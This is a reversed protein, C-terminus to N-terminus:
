ARIFGRYVALIRALMRDLTFQTEFRERAARGFARRRSADSVLSELRDALVEPEAPPVLYGTEGDVVQDTSGGINTAVCPLGFAMAEIVVGGFPEPQASPLVFVDMAAYSARPDALEGTLVVRDTLGRAEIRARLRHEHDENGKAASGVILIRPSIGRDRLLRAADVLHEQGKRVFKIRGVTGVVVEDAGIGYRARFEQRLAARDVDFEEPPVGNNIVIVHDSPEFQAAIAGSVCIVRDSFRRIYREYLPWIRGFEQFSDRIHWIHPVGALRAALAPSVIVGTNTHVLEAGTRRILARLRWVAAPFGLAFRLLAAPSAYIQRTIVRLEPMISVSAGLARLRPALAGEEPLVVHPVFGRAVLATSLRLLSRSAGYLDGSNHVLLVAPAPEPRATPSTTEAGGLQPALTM